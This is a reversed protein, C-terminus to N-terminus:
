NPREVQDVDDLAADRSLITRWVNPREPPGHPILQDGVVLRNQSGFAPAKEAPRAYLTSGFSVRGGLAATYAVRDRYDTSQPVYDEQWAKARALAAQNKPHSLVLRLQDGAVWEARGERVYCEAIKRKIVGNGNWVSNVIRVKSM